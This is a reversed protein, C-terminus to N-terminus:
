HRKTPITSYKKMNWIPGLERKIERHQDILWRDIVGVTKIFYFVAAGTKDKIHSCLGTDQHVM